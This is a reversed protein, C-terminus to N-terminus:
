DDARYLSDMDEQSGEIDENARAARDAADMLRQEYQEMYEVDSYHIKVPAAEALYHRCARWAYTVADGIDTHYSDSIKLKGPKSRDWQTLYSDQEFVSGAFAKFKGTRLDDNLLEIFEFKRNKEAADMPLGHRARIEENIKKGLAGADIVMKIPKYKEQLNKIKGVLTTIDQKTAIDEEILYVNKTIYSFGLVAIADADNWGIDVGFIYELKEDPLKQYMNIHKNFNYVLGEADYVWMGYFERQISPHSPDVGRRKCVELIHQEPTKKSKLFIHPNDHMTWKHNSWGASNHAADYFYGNPIPGPTGIM